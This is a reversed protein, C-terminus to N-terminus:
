PITELGLLIAALAPRDRAHEGVHAFRVVGERDLLFLAPRAIRRGDDDTEGPDAVGYRDIATLESDTLVPYRYPAALAAV